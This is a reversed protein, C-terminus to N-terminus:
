TATEGAAAAAAAMRRDLGDRWHPLSIGHVRALRGCDLRSSAPRRAASPYDAAAIDRVQASPGGRAASHAFVARAFDAWNTAGAATAHFLGFAAAPADSGLRPALSLIAAALDPAYTPAGHQDAVVDVVTRTGALRLIAAPFNAPGADYVWSTRLVLSRPNAAAVAREGALKSRGYANLPATPDDEVYPTPSAGDFVYDTSVHIVPLGRAAAAAALAGAGEANIRLAQREESEARDVATYAAANVIVDPRLRDIVGGLSDPAALDLDPRGLAVLDLRERRAQELLARALQGSRGAVLLRM